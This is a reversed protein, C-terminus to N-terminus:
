PSSIKDKQILSLLKIFIDNDDIKEWHKKFELNNSGQYFEGSESDILIWKKPFKTIINLTFKENNVEYNGFIKSKRKM